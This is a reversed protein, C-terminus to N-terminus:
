RSLKQLFTDIMEGVNKMKGVQAANLNVGFETEAALMLVVNMLSDWGVIDEAVTDDHIEIEDNDFVDQFVSNLRNRIEERDVAM